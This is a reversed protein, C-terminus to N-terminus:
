ILDVDFSKKLVKIFRNVPFGVINYYDGKIKEILFGGLGQIAYGGAKDSYQERKLYNKIEADSLKMFTVETKECFGVIRDGKKVSVGSLVHHTNGSLKKLMQYAEKFSDPKTIIHNLYVVTDSTVVIEDKFTNKSEIEKLKEYSIKKVFDSPNENRDFKEEDIQPFVRRFNLGLKEFIKKRRPSSSGLIFRNSMKAKWYSPLLAMM